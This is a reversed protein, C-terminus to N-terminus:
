TISFINKKWCTHHEKPVWFEDLMELKQFTRQASGEGGLNSGQLSVLLELDRNQTLFEKFKDGADGEACTGPGPAPASGFQRKRWWSRHSLKKPYCSPAPAREPLFWTFSLAPAKKPSTNQPLYNHFVSWDAYISPLFALTSFQIKAM